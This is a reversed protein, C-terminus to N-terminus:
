LVQSSVGLIYCSCLSFYTFEYNVKKGCKIGVYKYHKKLNNKHNVFGFIKSGSKKNRLEELKKKGGVRGGEDCNRVDSEFFSHCDM